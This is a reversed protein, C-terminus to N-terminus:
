VVSKRDLLGSGRLQMLKDLITHDPHIGHRYLKLAYHKGNAEIEFIKAQGSESSILRVTRYSVRGLIYFSYEPTEVSSRSAQKGTPAGTDSRQPPADGWAARGGSASTDSKQPADGWRPRQATSTDSKQPTGGWNQNVGM